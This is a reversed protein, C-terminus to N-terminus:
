KCDLKGVIDDPLKTAILFGRESDEIIDGNTDVGVVAVGGSGDIYVRIKGGQGVKSSFIKDSAFIDALVKDEGFLRYGLTGWEGDSQNTRANYIEELNMGVFINDETNGEDTNLTSLREDTIEAEIASRVADLTSIDKAVKSQELYKIVNPALLSVLVAMIAVVIILEILTFGKKNKTKQM